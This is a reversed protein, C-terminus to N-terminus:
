LANKKEHSYGHSLGSGSLDERRMQRMKEIFEPNQSLLWDERDEKTDAKDFVSISFTVTEIKKKTLSVDSRKM